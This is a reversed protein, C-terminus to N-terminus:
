NAELRRWRIVSQRLCGELQSLHIEFQVDEGLTKQAELLIAEASPVLERTLPDIIQYEEEVGLSFNKRGLLCLQPERGTRKFVNM